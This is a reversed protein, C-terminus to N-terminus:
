RTKSDVSLLVLYCSLWLETHGSGYVTWSLIMVNSGRQTPFGHPVPLNRSCLPSSDHVAIINEKNNGGFLLRFLQNFQWHNSFPAHGQAMATVCKLAITLWCSQISIDPNKLDLYFHNESVFGSVFRGTSWCQWWGNEEDVEKGSFLLADSFTRNMVQTFDSTSFAYIFSITPFWRYRGNEIMWPGLDTWIQLILKYGGYTYWSCKFHVSM